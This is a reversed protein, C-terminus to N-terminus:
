RPSTKETMRIINMRDPGSRGGCDVCVLRGRAGRDEKGVVSWVARQEIGSPRSM